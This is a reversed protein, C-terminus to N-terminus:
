NLGIQIETVNEASDPGVYKHYVERSEDNIKHGNSFLQPMFKKYTEGMENISGNHVTSACKFGQLEKFKYKGDYPKEGDVVMAIELVFKTDLSTM